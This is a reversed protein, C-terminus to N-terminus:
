PCISRKCLSAELVELCAFPELDDAMHDLLHFKITYLGTEHNGDLTAKLLRKLSEIHRRLEGTRVDRATEGSKYGTLSSVLYSYMSHLVRLSVQEVLATAHYISGPVFLFVMDLTHYDKGEPLGRFGTSGFLQGLAFRSIM